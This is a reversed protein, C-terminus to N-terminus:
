EQVFDPFQRDRGLRFEETYEFISLKASESAPNFCGYVYTNECGCVLNRILGNRISFEALIEVIPQIDEVNVHWRQAFMFFVNWFEHLGQYAIHIALM